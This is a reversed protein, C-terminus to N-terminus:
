FKLNKLWLTFVAKEKDELNFSHVEDSLSLHMVTVNATAKQKKKFSNAVWFAGSKRKMTRLLSWYVSNQTMQLNLYVAMKQISIYNILDLAPGTMLLCLAMIVMMTFIEDSLVKLELGINICDVWWSPYEDLCRHLCIALKSGCIQSGICEWEPWSSCSYHFRYNEM